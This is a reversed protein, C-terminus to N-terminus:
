TKKYTKSRKSVSMEFIIKLFYFFYNQHIEACFTNQLAVAAVIGSVSRNPGYFKM